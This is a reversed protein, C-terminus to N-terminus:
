RCRAESGREHCVHHYNNVRAQGTDLQPPPLWETRWDRRKGTRWGGPKVSRNHPGCALTLETIDTRGGDAWDTVAHHVQTEYAPASCGPKTCGRELGFLMLRQATSACRRARGLYLPQSTHQDFVALYNHANAAMAIVDRMPVLTGGATVGHGAAAQLDQLTATIVVTAPLGNHTSSGRLALLDRCMAGMADHNRQARTRTDTVVVDASPGVDSAETAERDAPEVESSGNDAADVAESDAPEAPDDGPEPAPEVDPADPNNRGPAGYIAWGAEIWARTAADVTGHIESSGDPRQKSFWIGRKQKVLEECFEGDQDIHQALRKAAQGLQQPDLGGALDALHAEAAERVDFGVSRPIQKDFFKRIVRVHEAGILGQRVAAATNALVPALREGTMTVRPALQKAEAVRQNGQAVSIRLLTSLARGVSSEGLEAVPARGLQAVLHHRVMASARVFSEWEATAALVETTSLADLPEAMLADVERRLAAIRESVRGSEM